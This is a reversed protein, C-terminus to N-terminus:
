KSPKKSFDVADTDWNKDIGFLECAHANGITKDKIFPMKLVTKSEIHSLASEVDKVLVSM